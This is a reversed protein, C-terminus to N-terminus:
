SSKQENMFCAFRDDFMRPKFEIVEFEAVQHIYFPDKKILAWVADLSAMNALIIGGTRPIRPGSVILESREYCANLYEVHAPVVEEVREIPQIYNVLIIYM